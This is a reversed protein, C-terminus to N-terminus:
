GISELFSDVSTSICIINTNTLAEIMYLRVQKREIFLSTTVICTCYQQVNYKSAMVCGMYLIM